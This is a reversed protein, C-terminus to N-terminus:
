LIHEKRGSPLGKDRPKKPYNDLDFSVMMKVLEPFKVMPVWGLAKKAKAPNALVERVEIPRLNAKDTVVYKKWDMGAEKFAMEVFERITHNEGTGIVLDDPSDQQLMLWMAEVYDGAFGWDRKADLNGLVLETADGNKIQAITSTIKRTVFEFGRRPSEHNFLIGSCVFLNYAERYMKVLYFCALKSIAYPSVPNFPTAEDQPIVKVAGFMESTGAFYFKAKPALEKIASLFYQTSNINANFTKFEDEFSIKVQSQAALHYIEDPKITAILRRITPFDTVDGFHIKIRDKLHDSARFINKIKEHSVQRVLGHVEYEKELLLEVLYSGDQGTLGTVLAKKNM